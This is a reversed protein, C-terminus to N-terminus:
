FISQFGFILNIVAPAAELAGDATSFSVHKLGKEKVFKPGLQLFYSRNICLYGFRMKHEELFAVKLRIV